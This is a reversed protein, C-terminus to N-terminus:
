VITAPIDSSGPADPLSKTFKMLGDPFGGVADANAVTFLGNVAAPNGKAANNSFPDASALDHLIVGTGDLKCSLWWRDNIVTLGNSSGITVHDRKGTTTGSVADTLFSIGQMEEPPEVGAAELIVASIDHHQALLDSRKGAHEGNPFRLMLPIDYIVPMSPYARKGMFAGTFVRDGLAQGHDSTLIVLTDNLRGTAELTDM